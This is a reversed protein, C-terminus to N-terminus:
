LSREPVYYDIKIDDAYFGENEWPLMTDNDEEQLCEPAICNLCGSVSNWNNKCYEMEDLSGVNRKKYVRPRNDESAKARRYKYYYETQYKNQYKKKYEKNHEVCRKTRYDSQKIEVDCGCDICQIIKTTM